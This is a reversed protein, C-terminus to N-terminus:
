MEVLAGVHDKRVLRLIHAPLIDPRLAVYNSHNHWQFRAGTLLDEVEFDEQHPIALKKFDLDLWGTQEHVPDLNIVVLIWNEGSSKSYCLIQPNDVFHFSLSIDNHFAPNERRIRNVQTILPALSQKATRDWHRIEYKESNLYEESGPKVPTNECLEFAPGYIGYNAGLTAALILRQVFAPRGGRQLTEHLIDPTNPWLNPRFFDAIPPKSLEEFYQQLEEKTNRWTFYTYSQTFGAKALSYMVHPRTFAESLFIVDPYTKHIEAICWEWFRFAKTHPNDVRFIHIGQQIWHNFIGYLADWLSRWKSTDFNFPYIDQYKKPPNEAYQISGDPRTNFWEPHEIVWPHDPSCQFAIDLALELGHDRAASVLCRIDALTGLKAHVAKHGGEPSGIAWPSGPDDRNSVVNNNPGKRFSTGIPHIPPLYLVDFGMAAIEPLLSGMDALTGHRSPDNSTSRPFLEYWTSYRAQVRDVWLPLEKEYRTVLNPDPIEGVRLRMEDSLQYEYIPIESAALKGLRTSTELFLSRDTGTSRSSIQNLLNAGTRLALSIDARSASPETGDPTSQAALRKQLDSYWTAFHDIWGEITYRWEGLKDVLFSASWLDNTLPTLPISRWEKESAHRYCLRGSIHEHGDAFVAATVTVTDGL